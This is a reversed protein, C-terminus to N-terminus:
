NSITSFGFFASIQLSVRQLIIVTDEQAICSEFRSWGQGGLLSRNM